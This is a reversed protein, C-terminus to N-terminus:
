LVCVKELMQEQLRATWDKRNKDLGCSFKTYLYLILVSFERLKSLVCKVEAADKPRWVKLRKDVIGCIYRTYEHTWQFQTLLSCSYSNILKKIVMLPSLGFNFM